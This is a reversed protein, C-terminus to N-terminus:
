SAAGARERGAWTRQTLLVAWTTLVFPWTYVAMGTQQLAWWLPVTVCAAVLPVLLRVARAADHRPFVAGLALATLFGCYGALGTMAPQWGLIWFGLVTASLAGVLSWLGERAGALFMIAIVMLGTIWHDTLLVQASALVSGIVVDPILEPVEFPPMGLSDADRHWRAFIPHLVTNVACFPGTLMPLWNFIRVRELTRVLLACLAGGLVTWLLAAM